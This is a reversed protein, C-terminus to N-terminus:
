QGVLDDLHQLAVAAGDAVQQLVGGRQGVASASRSVTILWTIVFRSLPATWTPDVDHRATAVGDRCSCCNTEPSAASRSAIPVAMSLM